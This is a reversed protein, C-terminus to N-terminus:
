PKSEDPPTTTHAACYALDGNKRLYLSELPLFILIAILWDWFMSIPILYKSLLHFSLLSCFLAFRFKPLAALIVTSLELILVFVLSTILLTPHDLLWNGLPTNKEHIFSQLANNHFVWGFGSIMLKQLASYSYLAGVAIRAVQLVQINFKSKPNEYDFFVFFFMLVPTVSNAYVSGFNDVYGIAPIAFLLWLYKFTNSKIGIVM